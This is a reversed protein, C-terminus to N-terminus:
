DHDIVTAADCVIARASDFNSDTVNNLGDPSRRRQSRAGFDAATAVHAACCVCLCMASGLSTQKSMNNLPDNIDQQQLERSKSPPMGMVLPRSRIRRFCQFPQSQISHGRAAKETANALIDTLDARAWLDFNL